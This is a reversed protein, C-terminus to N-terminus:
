RRRQSRARDQFTSVAAREMRACALHRTLMAGSPWTGLTPHAPMLLPVLSTLYGMTLHANLLSMLLIVLVTQALLLRRDLATRLDPLTTSRPRPVKSNQM